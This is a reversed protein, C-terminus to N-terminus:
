APPWTQSRRCKAWAVRQAKVPHCGKRVYHGAWAAIRPGENHYEYGYDSAM